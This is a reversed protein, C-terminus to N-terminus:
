NKLKKFTNILRFKDAKDIIYDLKMPRYKTFEMSFLLHKENVFTRNEETLKEWKYINNHLHGHINFDYDDVCMPYHSFLVRKGRYSDQFSYCVFNWGHTLYWNNTKRDHNGKVLIKRCKLPKIFREYVELERGISIDGLCILLDKEPITMLNEFMKKSHDEPRSCYEPKILNDHLFHLDSCIWICILPSNKM